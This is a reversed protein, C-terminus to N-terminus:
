VLCKWFAVDSISTVTYTVGKYTVSSPISLAGKFPDAVYLFEVEKTSKNKNKNKEYIFSYYFKGVNFDYAFTHLTVCLSITVAIIKRIYNICKEM